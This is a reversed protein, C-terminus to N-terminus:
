VNLGASRRIEEIKELAAAEGLEILERRRMMQDPRIHAIRPEIVIDARQRQESVSTRILTLASRIMVGFATRPRARFTAGCGILDVAIVVDAGLSKAQDVPLGATVAGDVLMRGDNTRVPTFIGPVACSARVAEAIDGDTMVVEEGNVIDYAIAAFATKMDSIDSINLNARVFAGLPLNSFFGMPSVVPRIASSWKLGKTLVEIEAAAVGAAAFAGVASGASTGAIVDPFIGHAELAKLV